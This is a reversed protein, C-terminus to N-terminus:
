GDVVKSSPRVSVAFPHHEFLILADRFHNLPLLGPQAIENSAAHGIRTIDLVNQLVDEVLEDFCVAQQHRDFWTVPQSKRTARLRM